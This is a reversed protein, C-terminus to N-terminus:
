KVPVAVAAGTSDELILCGAAYTQLARVGADCPATDVSAVPAGFGDLLVVAEEEAASGGAAAAVGSASM